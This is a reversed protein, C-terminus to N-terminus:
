MRKMDNNVLCGTVRGKYNSGNIAGNFLDQIWRYNLM